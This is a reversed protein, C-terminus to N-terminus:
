QRLRRAEEAREIEHRLGPATTSRVVMPPSSNPRRAYLLGAIVGEWAHWPPFDRAIAALAGPRERTPEYDNRHAGM